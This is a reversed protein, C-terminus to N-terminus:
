NKEHNQTDKRAVKRVGFRYSVPKDGYHFFMM